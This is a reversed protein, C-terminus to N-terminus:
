GEGREGREGGVREGRGEVEWRLGGREWDFEKVMRFGFLGIEVM